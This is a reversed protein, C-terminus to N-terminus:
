RNGISKQVCVWDGVCPMDVSSAATYLFKGTLEAPVEVHEDRVLYRGRDVATVRAIRRGSGCAAQEDFWRDWGIGALEM